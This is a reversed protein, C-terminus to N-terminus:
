CLDQSRPQWSEYTMFLQSFILYIDRKCSFCFSTLVLLLVAIRRTVPIGHNRVNGLDRLGVEVIEIGRKWHKIISGDVHIKM